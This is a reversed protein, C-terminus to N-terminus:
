KWLGERLCGEEVERRYGIGNYRALFKTVAQDCDTDVVITHNTVRDADLMMSVVTILENEVQAQNQVLIGIECSM